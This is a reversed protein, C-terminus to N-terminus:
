ETSQGGALEKFNKEELNGRWVGVQREHYVYPWEGGETSCDIRFEGQHAHAARLRLM